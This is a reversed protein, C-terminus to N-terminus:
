LIEAATLAGRLGSRLPGSLPTMPLRIGTDIHGMEHLAWKVPIPNPEVFLARHLPLLRDHLAQARQEEGAQMVACFTALASPAVNATVSIIGVAGAQLMAFNRVDDGSYICFDETTLKRLCETRRTDASAEKIGVINPHRALVAVTEPLLDCCTRDPVNYLIQPVEVQDAIATHHRLLGRQTPRNYYPTVILCADAGALAAERSLHLAEGTSSAGTGAIVPVRGAALQVVRAILDVREQVALTSSEGTTGVAVIGNTGQAIHWDVLTAVAQQDIAGDPKMPTVLAVISGRFM